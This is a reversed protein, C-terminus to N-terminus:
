SAGREPRMAEAVRWGAAFSQFTERAVRRAGVAMSFATVVERVDARESSARAEGSAYGLFYAVALAPTNLPSM